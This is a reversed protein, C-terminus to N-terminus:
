GAITMGFSSFEKMSKAKAMRFHLLKKTLEALRVEDADVLSPPTNFRKVEIAVLETEDSM